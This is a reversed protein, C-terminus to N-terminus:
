LTCLFILYIFLLSIIIDPSRFVMIILQILINCVWTSVCLCPIPQIYCCYPSCFGWLVKQNIATNSNIFLRVCIRMHVFPFFSFAKKKKLVMRHEYFNWTVNFIKHDVCLSIWNALDLINCRAQYSRVGSTVPKLCKTKLFSVASYM